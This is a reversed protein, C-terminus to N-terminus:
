MSALRRRLELIREGSDGRPYQTFSLNAGFVDDVVKLTEARGHRAEAEDLARIDCLAEYFTKLRVSAIPKGADGPYVSFADGAPAFYEGDTCFYPDIRHTSHQSMWFNYGWHLFGSAKAKWMQVGIIRTRGLPMAIFRNSVNVSQSCCYYVWLGDPIEALFEEAANTGAIPHSCLGEKYFSVESMADAVICGGLLDRVSEVASSYTEKEAESPEDSIHFVCQKEVSVGQERLHTTLEPLFASLFTRYEEGSADTDWGFVRRYGDETKAMIKPAHGAGWQTFLHSFEFYEAGCSRGMDMFRDLKDFGFIWKGNELTVDVLQVTLREGGVETDLPPTFLPTFLANVGHSVACRVYNELILFHENSLPEVGYYEALCDAHLWQMVVTKQPPLSKDLLPMVSAVRGIEEGAATHLGEYSSFVVTVCYKGALADPPVSVEVRFLATQAQPIYVESEETIPFLADPYLGPDTSIYDDDYSDPYAAVRVPVSGVSYLRATIEEARIEKADVNKENQDLLAVTVRAKCKRKLLQASPDTAAIHFSFTEGKMVPYTTFEAIDGMDDTLRTKELPSIAKLKISCINKETM